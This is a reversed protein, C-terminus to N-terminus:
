FDSCPRMSGDSKPTLHLPSVWETSDNPKVKEVVGLRVMEMWAEKGKIAKESNPMLPRLKAKFPPGNTPIKHTVGHKTSLDNFNPEQIDKFKDLLRQYKPQIPNADSRATPLSKMAAVQFYESELPFGSAADQLMATQPSDVPLAVCKLQARIDAKRDHLVLDGFPGWEINLRHKVMFDWGLIDTDVDAITAVIDYTKRGLRVSVVKQGYCKITSGNVAQLIKTKDIKDESSRKIVSVMSGTDCLKWTKSIGDYVKPRCDLGRSGPTHSSAVLASVEDGAQFGKLYPNDEAVPELSKLVLANWCKQTESRFEFNQNRCREVLSALVPREDQNKYIIEKYKRDQIDQNYMTDFFLDYNPKKM